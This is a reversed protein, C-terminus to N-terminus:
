RPTAKLDYTGAPLVLVKGPTQSTFSWGQMAPATLQSSRAVVGYGPLNAGRKDVVSLTVKPPTGLAPVAYDQAVDAALTRSSATSTFVFFPDDETGSGFLVTAQLACTAGSRAQMAYTYPSSGASLQAMVSERAADLRAGDAGTGEPTSCTVFGTVPRPSTVTGAIGVEAAPITLTADGSLTVDPLRQGGVKVTLPQDFPLKARVVPPNGKASPDISLHYQQAGDASALIEQIGRVTHGDGPPWKLRDIGDVTLTVDHLPPLAPLKVDHTVDGCADITELGVQRVQEGLSESLSTM